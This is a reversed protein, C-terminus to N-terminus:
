ATAARGRRAKEFFAILVESSHQVSRARFGWTKEGWCGAGLSDLSACCFGRGFARARARQAMSHWARCHQAGWCQARPRGRRAGRVSTVARSVGAGALVWPSPSAGGCGGPVAGADGLQSSDAGPPRRSRMRAVGRWGRGATVFRDHAWRAAARWGTGPSRSAAERSAAAGEGAAWDGPAGRRRGCAIQHM